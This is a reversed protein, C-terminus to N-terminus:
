IRSCFLWYNNVSLYGDVENHATLYGVSWVIKRRMENEKKGRIKRRWKMGEIMVEGEKESGRERKANHLSSVEPLSLPRLLPPANSNKAVYLM